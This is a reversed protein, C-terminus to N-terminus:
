AGLWRPARKELFARPGEQADQSSYVPRHLEVARQFGAECGLDLAAQVSAKGALVSLPANAGIRRALELARERVAQPTPEVHNVFGLAHLREVPFTDATMVMELLIPQPLMWALPAAWPSGRGVRAETIGGATGALGVRLDANMALVMGAGTFHGTMAAILPKRVARMRRYFPDPLLDLIDRGTEARLRAADKLDMGACFTGCDASALVVARVRPDRDVEEWLGHLRQNAALGLANRAAPRNLTITAIGDAVEYLVEAEGDTRTDGAM